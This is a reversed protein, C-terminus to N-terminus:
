GSASGTASRRRRAGPRVMEAVWGPLGGGAFLAKWLSRIDGVTSTSGATAQAEYPCTSSTRAGSATWRSTGGPPTGALEDSRLFATDHMGAPGCVREQVLDHFPTGTTREAILAPLVYGSNCYSFREDPAFKTAHGDLVAVYQETTALEHVPVPMLYDDVDVDTEEDLYDGIGSRHALLHEVTVDAGVLPLDTGLVSRATTALELVGDEVLSVAEALATLRQAGSALAFRTDIANPM